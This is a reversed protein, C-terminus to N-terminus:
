NSSIWYILFFLNLPIQNLAIKGWEWRAFYINAKFFVCFFSYASDIDIGYVFILYDM